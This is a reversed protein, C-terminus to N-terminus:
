GDREGPPRRLEHLKSKLARFYESETIEAVQQQRKAEDLEIRLEQVQQQLRQQRAYVEEAM